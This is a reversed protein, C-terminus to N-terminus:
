DKGSGFLREFLQGRGKPKQERHAAIKELPEKLRAVLV